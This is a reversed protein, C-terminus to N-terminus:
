IYARPRPLKQDRDGMGFARHSSQIFQGILLSCTAQISSVNALCVCATSKMATMENRMSRRVSLCVSLRVSLCTTCWWRTITSGNISRLESTHLRCSGFTSWRWLGAGDDCRSNTRMVADKSRIARTNWVCEESFRWTLRDGRSGRVLPSIDMTM